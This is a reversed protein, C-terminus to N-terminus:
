AFLSSGVRVITAGQEIATEFDGSMGMSLETLAVTAPLNPSLDDRLQRLSAFNARAVETDGELAAMCMLGRVRLHPLTAVQQLFTEVSEPAFGHKSVDGSVNVEVLADVVRDILEAEANITEALRLSDLSHLLSVFPLTRRVKNRQLHGILHWRVDPTSWAGAKDWLSQPRSEGLDRCGAKYLSETQALDVYKTVGVVTVDAPNRGAAEAARAARECVQQYNDAIQHPTSAM